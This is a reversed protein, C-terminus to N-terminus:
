TTFIPNRVIKPNMMLDKINDDLFHILKRDIENMNQKSKINNFANYIRQIKSVPNEEDSVLEFVKQCVPTKRSHSIIIKKNKTITPKPLYEFLDFQDNDLLLM